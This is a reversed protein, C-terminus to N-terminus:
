CASRGVEARVAALREPTDVSLACSDVHVTWIPVGADLWALQELSEAITRDTRPAAACRHVVGPAFGYIGIHQLPSEGDRSFDAARGDRVHARVCAADHGHRPTVLTTVAGSRLATAIQVLHAPDVLPQDVQVNVVAVEPPSVAAARHTGSPHSGTRVVEAGFSRAVRWVADDDTAIVVRDFCGADVVRRWVWQLM